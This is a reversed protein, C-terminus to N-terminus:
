FKKKNKSKEVVEFYKLKKVMNLFHEVNKLMNRSKSWKEIMKFSQPVIM